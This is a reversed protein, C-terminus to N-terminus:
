GKFKRLTTETVKRVSKGSIGKEGSKKSSISAERMLEQLFLMYDLFVLIDANKSISRRSHAKVIRKVTARPYLKPVAVM